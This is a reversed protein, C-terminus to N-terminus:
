DLAMMLNFHGFVQLLLLLRMMRLMKETLHLNCFTPESPKSRIGTVLLLLRGFHGVAAKESPTGRKTALNNKNTGEVFPFVM